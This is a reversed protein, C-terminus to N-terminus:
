QEIANNLINLHFVFLLNQIYIYMHLIKYIYEKSKKVRHLLWTRIKTVRHVKALEGRDMPNELCPYQLPNPKLVNWYKKSKWWTWYGRWNKKDVKVYIKMHRMYDMCEVVTYNTISSYIHMTSYLETAIQPKDISYSKM